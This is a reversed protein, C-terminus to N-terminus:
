ARFYEKTAIDRNRFNEIEQLVVEVVMVNSLPTGIYHTLDTDGTTDLEDIIIDNLERAIRQIKECGKEIKNLKKLTAKNM